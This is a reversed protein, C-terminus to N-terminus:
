LISLGPWGTGVSVRSRWAGQLAAVLIDIKLDSTHSSGSFIAHLDVGNVQESCHDCLPHYLRSSQPFSSLGVKSLTFKSGIQNLFFSIPGAKQYGTRWRGSPRADSHEHNKDVNGVRQLYLSVELNTRQVVDWCCTLMDSPRIQESLTVHQWM